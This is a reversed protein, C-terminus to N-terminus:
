DAGNISGGKQQYMEALWLSALHEVSIGARFAVLELKRGLEAPLEITMEVMEM